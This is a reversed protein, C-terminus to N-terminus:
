TREKLFRSPSTALMGLYQNGDAGKGRDRSTQARGEKLQQPRYLSEKKRHPRFYNKKKKAEVMYGGERPGL